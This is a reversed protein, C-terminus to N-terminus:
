QPNCGILHGLLQVLLSTTTWLMIRRMTHQGHLAAKNMDYSPINMGDSQRWIVCMFIRGTPKCTVIMHPNITPGLPLPQKSGPVRSFREPFAGKRGEKRVEKWGVKSCYRLWLGWTSNHVQLTKFSGIVVQVRIGEKWGVMSCYRSSRSSWATCCDPVWLGGTTYRCNFSGMMITTLYLWRCESIESGEKWWRLVKIMCGHLAAIQFECGGQQTGALNQLEGDDYICDVSQFESGEKRVDLMVANGPVGAQDHVQLTKFSGMIVTSLHLWGATGASQVRFNGTSATCYHTSEKQRPATITGWGM